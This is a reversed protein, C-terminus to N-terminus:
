YFNNRKYYDEKKEKSKLIIEPLSFAFMFFFLSIFIFTIISSIIYLNSLNNYFLFYTISIFFPYTLLLYFIKILKAFLFFIASLLIIFLTYPIMKLVEYILGSNGNIANLLGNYQEETLGSTSLLKVSYHRLISNYNLDGISNFEILESNSIFIIQYEYKSIEIIKYNNMDITDFDIWKKNKFDVFHAKYKSFPIYFLEGNSKITFNKEKIDKPFTFSFSYKDREKVISFSKSIQSFIIISNDFIFGKNDSYNDAFSINNIKYDSITQLTHSDWCSINITFNGVVNELQITTNQIFTMGTLNINTVNKIITSLSDRIILEDAFLNNDSCNWYISSTSFQTYNAYDIFTTGINPILNDIYYYYDQTTATTNSNSCNIKLISTKSSSSVDYFFGTNISLNVSNNEYILTSNDYISCIFPNDTYSFTGNFYIEVSNENYNKTNNILNTFLSLSPIPPTYGSEACGSTNYQLIEVLTINRNWGCFDSLYGTYKSGLSGASGIKNRNSATTILQGGDGTNTFNGDLYFTIYRQMIEQICLSHNENTAIIGNPSALGGVGDHSLYFDYGGSSVLFFFTLGSIDLLAETYLVQYGSSPTNFKFCLTFNQYPFFLTTGNTKSMYSSGDFYARGTSFTVGYNTYNNGNTTVDSANSILPLNIILGNSINQAHVSSISILLLFFLLFLIKKM